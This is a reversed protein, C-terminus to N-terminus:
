EKVLYIKSVCHSVNFMIHSAETTCYSPSVCVCVCVCVCVLIISSAKGLISQYSFM